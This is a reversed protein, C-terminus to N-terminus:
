ACLRERAIFLNALALSTLLRNKNKALGRYRVKGFGWLKKIVLFVYEVKARVSSKSTNKRKQQKQENKHLLKVGLARINLSTGRKMTFLATQGIIGVSQGM